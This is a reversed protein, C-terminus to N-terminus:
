ITFMLRPKQVTGCPKFLPSVYLPSVFPKLLSSFASIKKKKQQQQQGPTPSVGPYLSNCGPTQTKRTYTAQSTCSTLFLFFTPSMHTFPFAPFLSLQSSSTPFFFSIFSVNPFYATPLCFLPFSLFSSVMFFLFLPHLFLLLISPFSFVQSYAYGHAFHMGM